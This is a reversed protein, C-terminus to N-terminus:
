RVIVAEAEGLSVFVLLQRLALCLLVKVGAELALSCSSVKVFSISPFPPLYPLMTIEFEVITDNDVVQM